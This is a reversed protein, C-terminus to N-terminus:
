ANRRRGRIAARGHWGYGGRADMSDPPTFFATGHATCEHNTGGLLFNTRDYPNIPLGGQSPPGRNMM